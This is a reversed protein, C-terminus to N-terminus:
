NGGRGAKSDLYSRVTSDENATVEMAKLNNDEADLLERLRATDESCNSIKELKPRSSKAKTM